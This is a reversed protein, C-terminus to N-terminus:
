KFDRSTQPVKKYEQNLAILYSILRLTTKEQFSIPGIYAREGKKKSQRSRIYTEPGKKYNKFTLIDTLSRGFRIVLEMNNGKLEELEANCKGHRKKCREKKRENKISRCGDQESGGNDVAIQACEGMKLRIAEVDAQLPLTFGIYVGNKKIPRGAKNDFKYNGILDELLQENRGDNSGYVNITHGVLENVGYNTFNDWINALGERQGKPFKCCDWNGADRDYSDVKEKSCDYLPTADPNYNAAAPNACGGTPYNCSDKLERTAKEDYNLAKKDMCGDIYKCCKNDKCPRIEKEPHEEKLKKFSSVKEWYNEAKPDLCGEYYECCSNDTEDFNVEFEAEKTKSDVNYKIDYEKGKCDIWNKKEFNSAAPDMCGQLRPRKARVKVEPTNIGSTLFYDADVGNKIDITSDNTINDAYGIYSMTVTEGPKIGTLKFKGERDSTTGAQNDGKRETVFINTGLLPEKTESDKVTGQLTRTAQETLLSTTGHINKYNEHLQRIRNKEEPSIEFLNNM